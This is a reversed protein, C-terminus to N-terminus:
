AAERADEQLIVDAREGRSVTLRHFTLGGGPLAECPDVDADPIPQEGSGREHVRLQIQPQRAVGTRTNALRVEESCGEEDHRGDRQVM